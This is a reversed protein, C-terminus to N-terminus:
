SHYTEMLNVKFQTFKKENNKIDTKNEKNVFNKKM